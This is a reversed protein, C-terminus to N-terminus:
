DKKIIWWNGKDKFSRLKRNKCLYRIWRESYCYHKAAEKVSMTQKNEFLNNNLFRDDKMDLQGLLPSLVIM